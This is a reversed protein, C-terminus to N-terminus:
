KGVCSCRVVVGHHFGKERYELFFLKVAIIVAGFSFHSLLDIFVNSKIILYAWMSSQVKLRWLLILVYKKPFLLLETEPFLPESEWNEAAGAATKLQKPIPTWIRVPLKDRCIGQLMLAKLIFCPGVKPVTWFIQELLRGENMHHGAPSEFEPGM